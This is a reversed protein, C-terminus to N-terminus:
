SNVRIMETSKSIRFFLHSTKHMIKHLSRSFHESAYNKKMLSKLLWHNFIKIYWCIFNRPKKMTFWIRCIFPWTANEPLDHFACRFRWRTKLAFATKHSWFNIVCNRCKMQVRSVKLTKFFIYNLIDSDLNIFLPLNRILFTIM